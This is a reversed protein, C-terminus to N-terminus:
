CIACSRAEYARLCSCRRRCRNRGLGIQLQLTPGAAICATEDTKTRVCVILIYKVPHKSGTLVHALLGPEAMGKDILRAPLPAMIVGRDENDPDVYKPRERRIVRLTGPVYDLTETVEVGIRKLRSVDEEPELTIM